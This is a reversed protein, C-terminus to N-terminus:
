EECQTAIARFKALARQFAAAAAEREGEAINKERNQWLLETMAVCWRASRASARVPQGAVQVVVPNTHLQPFQRLAVWSSKEIEVEFGLAHKKGDAPM